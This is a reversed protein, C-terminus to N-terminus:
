RTVERQTTKSLGCLDWELDINRNKQHAVTGRGMGNAARLWVTMHQTTGSTVIRPLLLHRFNTMRMDPRPTGVAKADATKNPADMREGLNEQIRYRRNAHDVEACNSRHACSCVSSSACSGRRGCAMIGVAPRRIMGRSSGDAM